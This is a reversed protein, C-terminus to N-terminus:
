TTLIKADLLQDTVEDFVHMTKLMHVPVWMEGIHKNLPTFALLQKRPHKKIVWGELVLQHKKSYYSVFIRVPNKQQSIISAM